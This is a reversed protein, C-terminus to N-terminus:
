SRRIPFLRRGIRACDPFTSMCKNRSPSSPAPTNATYLSVFGVFPAGPARETVMCSLKKSAFQVPTFMLVGNKKVMAGDPVTGRSCASKRAVRSRVAKM